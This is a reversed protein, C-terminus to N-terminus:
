NPSRIVSVIGPAPSPLHLYKELNIRSHRPITVSDNEDVRLM